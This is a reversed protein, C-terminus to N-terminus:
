NQNPTMNTWTNTNFDYVWTENTYLDSNSDRGGYLVIVDHASVYVMRHASKEDPSVAPEMQMWTNSNFDYAWTENNTGGEVLFGGGFTIARDSDSDYAMDGFGEYQGFQPGDEPGYETWSNSNYDYTWVNDTKAREGEWLIVIDSEVDYVMNHWTRASPPNAPQMDLWTDTNFDYSWTDDFVGEGIRVGGFLIMRDSESDYVMIAGERKEPGSALRSWENSNFDYAWTGDYYNYDADGGGYMIIRDSEIDYAMSSGGLARPKTSPRMDTWENSEVDYSWTASSVKESFPKELEGGFVIVRDSESDYAMAPIGRPAPWPVPTVTVVETPTPAITPAETPQPTRTPTPEPTNTPVETLTPVSTPSIVSETLTLVSGTDSEQTTEACAALFVFLLL